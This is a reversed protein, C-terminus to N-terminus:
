YSFGNYWRWREGMEGMEEMEEMERDGSQRGPVSLRWFPCRGLCSGVM